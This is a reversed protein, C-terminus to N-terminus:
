HIVSSQLDSKVFKHFLQAVMKGEANVPFTAEVVKNHTSEKALSSTDGHKTLTAGHISM